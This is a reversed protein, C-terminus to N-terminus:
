VMVVNLVTHVKILSLDIKSDIRYQQRRIPLFLCDIVDNISNERVYENGRSYIWDLISHCSYPMLQKINWVCPLPSAAEAAASYFWSDWQQIRLCLECFISAFVCLTYLTNRSHSIRQLSCSSVSPYLSRKVNTPDWTWIRVLYSFNLRVITSSEIM